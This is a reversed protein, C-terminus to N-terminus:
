RHDVSEAVRERERRLADKLEEMTRPPNMTHLMEHCNPCVPRLDEKPNIKYKKGLASLPKLHHVHIYGRGIEGYKKAFDFECISCTAGFIDICAKRAKPDREYRNVVVRTKGGEWLASEGEHSGPLESRASFLQSEFTQYGKINFIGDKAVWWNKGSEKNRSVGLCSDYDQQTRFLIFGHEDFLAGPFRDLIHYWTEDKRYLAHRADVEWKRALERATIRPM